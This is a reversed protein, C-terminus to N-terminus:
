QFPQLVTGFHPVHGEPDAAPRGWCVTEPFYLLPSFLLHQLNRGGFRLSKCYEVTESETISILSELYELRNFKSKSGEM